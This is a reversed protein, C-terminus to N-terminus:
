LRLKMGEKVAQHSRSPTLGVNRKEQNLSNQPITPCQDTQYDLVIHLEDFIRVPM